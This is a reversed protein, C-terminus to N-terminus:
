FFNNLIKEKESRKSVKKTWSLRGHDTPSMCTQTNYKKKPYSGNHVDSNNIRKGNHQKYKKKRGNEQKYLNQGCIRYQM